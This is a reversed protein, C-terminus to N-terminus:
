PLDAVLDDDVAVLIVAVVLLAIAAVGHERRALADPAVLRGVAGERLERAHLAPLEHLPRQVEGPLLAAAVHQREGGGVAHQEAMARAPALAIATMESSSFRSKTMDSPALPTM